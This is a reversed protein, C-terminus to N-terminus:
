MEVDNSKTIGLTFLESFILVKLIEHESIQQMNESWKRRLVDM